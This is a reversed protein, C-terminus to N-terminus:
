IGARKLLDDRKKDIKFVCWNVYKSLDLSGNKGASIESRSPYLEIVTNERRGIFVYKGNIPRRGNYLVRGYRTCDIVDRFQLEDIDKETRILKPQKAM